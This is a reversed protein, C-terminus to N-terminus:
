DSTTLNTATASANFLASAAARAICANCKGYYKFTSAEQNEHEPKAACMALSPSPKHQALQHSPAKSQSTLHELLDM